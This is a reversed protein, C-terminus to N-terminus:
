PTGPIRQVSPLATLLYKVQADSSRSVGVARSHGAKDPHEADGKGEGKEARDELGDEKGDSVGPYPYKLVASCAGSGPQISQEFADIFGNGRDEGEVGDSM